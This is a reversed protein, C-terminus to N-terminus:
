RLLWFKFWDPLDSTAIRYALYSGGALALVIVGIIAVHVLLMILDEKFNKKM